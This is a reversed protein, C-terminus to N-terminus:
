EVAHYSVDEYIICYELQVKASGELRQLHNFSKKEYLWTWCCCCCCDDCAWVDEDAAGPLLGEVTEM